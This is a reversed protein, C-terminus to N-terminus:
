LVSYDMFVFCFCFLVIYDLFSLTDSFFHLCMLFHCSLVSFFIFIFFHCCFFFFFTTDTLVSGDWPDYLPASTLWVHTKIGTWFFPSEFLPTHIHYITTLLSHTPIAMAVNLVIGGIERADVNYRRFLTRLPPVFAPSIVLPINPFHPHPQSYKPTM